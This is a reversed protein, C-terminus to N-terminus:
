LGERGRRIWICEGSREESLIGIEFLPHHLLEVQVDLALKRSINNKGGAVSARAAGM